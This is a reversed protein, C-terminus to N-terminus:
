GSVWIPSAWAWQQNEQAVRLYYWDVEREQEDAFELSLSLQRETVARHILLAESRWGRMFHSRSGELLDAIRHEFRQGNVLFRLQAGRPALLEVVLANTGRLLPHPNGKTHSYWALESAGRHVIGHLPREDEVEDIDDSPALVPEGSFCPEVSLIEGDSLSLEGDWRVTEGRDGWGWELRVKARIPDELTAEPPHGFARQLPRGNKVVEVRDLADSGRVGVRVERQGLAIIEEGILGQSVELSLEIRDGTVAYCRRAKLAQWLAPRTLEPAFVATRGDGYHGPYGGHHDTGAIFGFRKGLALGHLATGLHTRPGMTHYMPYPGGDRESGGHGSFIEVVPSRHEDFHDWDIGRFGKGYGIHHPVIMTETGALARDLDELGDREVIDLEDGLAYVNHDGYANSHWEYSPLTVFAGPDDHRRVTELVTEWDRRLREFGERHFDIIRGYRERDTPMDPWSAHGTVSCFDLHQRALRFARRLSGYGYSIACHNHLDGWFISDEGPM